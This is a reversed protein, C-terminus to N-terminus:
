RGAFALDALKAYGRATTADNPNAEYPFAGAWLVGGHQSRRGARTAIQLQTKRAYGHEFDRASNRANVLFGGVGGGPLDGNM